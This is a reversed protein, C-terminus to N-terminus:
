AKETKHYVYIRDSTKTPIWGPLPDMLTIVRSGIPLEAELKKEIKPLYWPLSYIFVVDVEKLSREWFSRAYFLANRLGLRKADKISAVVKGPDIEYGIAEKAGAQAAAIVLRGDGSGLDVVRDTSTIEALEIMRRVLDPHTPVYPAGSVLTPLLGAIFGKYGAYVSAALALSLVLWLLVSLM